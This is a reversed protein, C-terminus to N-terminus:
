SAPLTAARRARSRDSVLRVITVLNATAIFTELVTGGISGSLINNALWCLTCVLFVVRMPIGRMTFAAWSALCSGVIPLAGAPTKLYYAGIVLNATIFLVALRRRQYKIALFSRAGSLSSSVVATPNGLLSFHVLYAFSELGNFFKLKWDTKQLFATVGIVLAVYGACQAPSFFDM